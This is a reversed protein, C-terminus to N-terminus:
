TTGKRLPWAAREIERLLAPYDEAGRPDKGPDYALARELPLKKAATSVRVEHTFVHQGDLKGLESRTWETIGEREDAAFVVAGGLKVKADSDARIQDVLRSIDLLGSVGLVGVLVPVIVLDAAYLASHTLFGTATPCDIIVVDALVGPARLVKALRRERGFTKALAVEVTDLGPSSPAMVLRDPRGAVVSLHPSLLEGFVMADAIGHASRGGLLWTTAHAGPDLDVLLTRKGAEAFGAALHTALSTKGVGGKSSAVAIVRPPM